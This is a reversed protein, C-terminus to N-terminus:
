LSVSGHVSPTHASLAASHLSLSRAPSHAQMSPTHVSQPSSNGSGGYATSELSAAQRKDDECDDFDEWRVDDSSESGYQQMMPLGVGHRELQLRSLKIDVGCHRELNHVQFAGNQKAHRLSGRLSPFTAVPAQSSATMYEMHLADAASCRHAPHRNLLSKVFDLAGKSYSDSTMSADEPEFAVSSGQLIAQKMSKPTRQKPKYPFNGFLLCFCTVAFSWMDIMENYALNMLMEPSMFPATGFVGTLCEENALSAAFGFDCLKITQADSGGVLFNDPKVDRHVVRMLHVHAIGMLMQSFINGLSQETLFTMQELHCLLTRDCQEMVMFCFADDYFV